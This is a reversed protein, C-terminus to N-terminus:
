VTQEDAPEIEDLFRRVTLVRVGKAALHDIVDWGRTLDEDRSVVVDAAGNLATEIVVDDDPDRCLEVEGAIPVVVARERLVSIVQRARGPHRQHKRVVKPRTLVDELEDLLEASTILVFEGARYADLVRAPLGFPNLIASVWVNTDIVARM